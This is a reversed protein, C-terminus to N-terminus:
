LCGRGLCRWSQPRIRRQDDLQHVLRRQQWHRRWSRRPRRHVAALIRGPRHRRPNGAARDVRHRGPERDRGHARAPEHGGLGLHDDQPWIRQGHGLGPVSRDRQRSGSRSDRLRGVLSARSQVGGVVSWGTGDYFKLNSSANDYVFSGASPVLPLAAPAFRMLSLNNLPNNAADVPGGWTRVDLGPANFDAGTPQDGDAWNTRTLWM